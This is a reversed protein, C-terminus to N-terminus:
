FIIGTERETAWSADRCHSVLSIRTRTVNAVPYLISPHPAFNLDLVDLSIDGLGGEVCALSHDDNLIYKAPLQGIGSVHSVHDCSISVRVYSTRNSEKFEHLNRHDIKNGQSFVFGFGFLGVQM